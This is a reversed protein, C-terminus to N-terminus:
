LERVLFTNYLEEAFFNLSGPMCAHLGDAVADPRLYLPSQDLVVLGYKESFEKGMEDFQPFLNYNYNTGYLRMHEILHSYNRLVIAPVDKQQRQAGDTNETRAFGPANTKWAYRINKHREWDVNLQKESSQKVDGGNAMGTSNTTQRKYENFYINSLHMFVLAMDGWDMMHAGAGLIVIDNATSGLNLQEVYNFFGNQGKFGFSLFDSRGFSIQPACKAAKSALVMNQLTAAAQGMTSDGVLLIRRNGLLRCFDVADWAALTCNNPQWYYREREAVEFITHDRIDCKSSYGGSQMYAPTMNVPRNYPTYMNCVMYKEACPTRDDGCLKQGEVGLGEWLDKGCSPFSKTLNPYSDRKWQGGLVSFSAGNCLPRDIRGDKNHRPHQTFSSEDEHEHENEISDSGGWRPDVSSPSADASYISYHGFLYGLIIIILIISQSFLSM